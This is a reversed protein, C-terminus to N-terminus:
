KSKSRMQIRLNWERRWVRPGGEGDLGKGLTEVGLGGKQSM